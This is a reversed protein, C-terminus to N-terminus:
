GALRVVEGAELGELVEIKLGDSLGVEIPRREFRNSGTEVEVYPRGEEFQLAREDITLVQTRRDLVIDANASSGARIFLDNRSAIAARITFQVTGDIEIGKPSIYELMGDIRANDLAGVTISLAMGEEIRGVESEDIHGGFVMDQMN